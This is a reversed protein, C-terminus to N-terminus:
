RRNEGFRTNQPNVQQNKLREILLHILVAVKLLSNVMTSNGWVWIHVKIIEVKIIETIM